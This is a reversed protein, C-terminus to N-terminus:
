PECILSTSTKNISIAKSSKLLQLIQFNAHGLRQHWIFDSAACQRNSYFARFEPNQLVYLGERRPGKTVVKQTELDIVYVANADFFVGCPYDECLKSVSLLSKQMSPCVLVDCLPISGTTTTLTTSGVHTIPLFNGDAVMVTESGNYPTANQLPAVNPTMHASAGSDTVWERGTADSVQLAALAQPTDDSQYSNDFRNWCKLASHGIRGCIQCIPRTNNAGASGQSQNWGSSNVQQSFGRGRTSFGGRGRSGFRNYSNGRSKQGSYNPKQVQFATFSGVDTPTEYSQLRSHFNSIDSVVDNFHPPPFRSMSSQVVTSIPDYERGLGNLFTFIKMSEEVPKGISSLQDCIARFERCYVSFDKNRNNLLQLRRRLDFERAVSSKNFNDALSLWVDQSTSLGHVYGLVEETLTGFIWSKILQDTCTWAEFTPNPIAVVGNNVTAPVTAAPPPVQGTVFGLLKQSRLLSEFQTKWLLYNNDNLKLTVYSSVHLNFPFPYPELAEAM